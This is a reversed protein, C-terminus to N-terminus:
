NILHTMIFRRYRRSILMPLAVLAGIALPVCWVIAVMMLFTQM